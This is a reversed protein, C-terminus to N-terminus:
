NYNLNLPPVMAKSDNGDKYPDAMSEEDITYGSVIKM